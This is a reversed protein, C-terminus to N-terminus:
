QRMRSIYNELTAEASGWGTKYQNIWAQALRLKKPNLAIFNTRGNKKRIVLGSSELVDMHKHIAPLSLSHRGALQKVTSPSLSLDHIIARRRSNAIAELISDLEATNM